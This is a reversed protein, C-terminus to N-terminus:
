DSGSVGFTSARNENNQSDQRVYPGEVDYGHCKFLTAKDWVNFPYIIFYFYLDLLAPSNHQDEVQGRQYGPPERVSRSVRM